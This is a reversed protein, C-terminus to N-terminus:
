ITFQPITTHNYQEQMQEVLENAEHVTIFNNGNIANTTFWVGEQSGEINIGKSNFFTTIM